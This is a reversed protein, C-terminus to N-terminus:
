IESEKINLIDFLEKKSKLYIKRKNRLDELYYQNLKYGKEKAIERLRRIYVVGSGFYLLATVLSEKTTILIDVHRVIKDLKMLSKLMNKGISLTAVIIDKLENQIKEVEKKNIADVVVIFDIDHAGEKKAKGTMYSGALIVENDLHKDLYNKYKMMEKVQIPKQLDNFYKLGLEQEDTLQVKKLKSINNIGEKILNTAKVPGIGIVKQLKEQKKLKPNKKLEDLEKLSGTKIIEDIKDAMKDGIGPVEKFNNGQYEKLNKIAKTYAKVRFKNDLLKHYKLLEKFIDIIKIKIALNGGKKLLNKVLKIEQKYKGNTELILPINYDIAIRLIELLPAKDKFIHGNGIAAHVNRHSGCEYKADNLHFVIINKIGIKNNFERFFRHVESVKNICYGALFIHATDICVGMHNHEKASFSKWLKAFHPIDYAIKTGGGATLELIVKVKPPKHKIIYKINKVFNDYAEDLPLNKSSGIHIISGIGGITNVKHLEDLYYDLAWKIRGSTPPYSCFNLLYNSHVVIGIDHTNIKEVDVFYKKSTSHPNTTLFTQIYDAKYELAQKIDDKLSQKLPTQYGIIVM